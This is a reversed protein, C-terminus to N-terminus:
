EKIPRDEIGKETFTYGGGLIVLQKGDYSSILLPRSSKKFKHLYKETKGDRVTTYMVGDLHGIVFAVDPLSVNHTEIFEPNDGRFKKFLDIAHIVKAHKSLPVPNRRTRKKTVKKKM